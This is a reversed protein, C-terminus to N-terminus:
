ELGSPAGNELVQVNGNGFCTVQYHNLASGEQADFQVSFFDTATFPTHHDALDYMLMIAPTQTQSALRQDTYVLAGQSSGLGPLFDIDSWEKGPSCNTFQGDTVHCFASPGVHITQASVAIPALLLGFVACSRILTSIM